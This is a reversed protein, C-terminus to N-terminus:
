KLRLPTGTAGNPGVFQLAQLITPTVSTIDTEETVAGVPIGWGCFVLPVQADYAYSSNHDTTVADKEIWGPQLAFMLDGSRQKHFGKQLKGTVGYNFNNHLMDHATVVASVGSIDSLFGAAQSVVDDVKLRASEILAKDFYLQQKYYGSIWNSNGFTAHLYSTLLSVASNANFTGVNMRRSAMYAPPDACGGTSTLVVLVDNLGIEADIFSLLGAIDNDLRAFADATEMSFPGFLRGITETASFGVALFDTYEDKGLQEAAILKLALDKTLTNGAPVATVMRYNEAYLKGNLVKPDYPFTRQGNFGAENPDADNLGYRTSEYMPTWRESMVRDGPHQSNIDQLWQPLANMYFSSTMWAGNATDFWYAGDAMFGASLVAADPELAIGFVKGRDGTATKIADGLTSAQLYHPSHQGRAYSGGTPFVQGDATATTMAKQDASYWSDAVIGHIAPSAGTFLTAYAPATQTYHYDYVAKYCSLGQQMMWKFGNDSMLHGFRGMYDTRMQEVVIALVLRPRGSRETEASQTQAARGAALGPLGTFLALLIGATLIRKSIM